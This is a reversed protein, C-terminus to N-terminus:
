DIRGLQHRTRDNVINGTNLTTRPELLICQVEATIAVPCHEVTRPVIIYEGAQVRVDGTRLKMLMEGQTVLFLEDELDHHHWHFEGKLKVLKIQMDNIDGGVHPSWADHIRAFGDALNIVQPTRPTTNM